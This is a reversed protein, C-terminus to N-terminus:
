LLSSNAGSGPWSIPMERVKTIMQGGSWMCGVLASARAQGGATARFTETM